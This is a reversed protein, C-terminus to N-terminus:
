TFKLWNFVEEVTLQWNQLVDLVPLIDQKEKVEPLQNPQFVTVSRDDSDVFSQIGLKLIRKTKLNFATSTNNSVTPKQSFVVPQRNKSLCSM